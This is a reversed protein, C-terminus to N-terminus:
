TRQTSQSFCLWQLSKNSVAQYAAFSVRGGLHDLHFGNAVISDRGGLHDSSTRQNGRLWSWRLSRMIRRIAQTVCDGFHSIM